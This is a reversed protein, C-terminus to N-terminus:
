RFFILCEVCPSSYSSYLCLDSINHLTINSQRCSIHVAFQWVLFPVFKSMRVENEVGAPRRSLTSAPLQFRNKLKGGKLTDVKKFYGGKLIDM